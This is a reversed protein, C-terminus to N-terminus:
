DQRSPDPIFEMKSGLGQVFRKGQKAAEKTYYKVSRRREGTTAEVLDSRAGNKLVKKMVKSFNMSLESTDALCTNCEMQTDSSRGFQITVMNYIDARRLDNAAKNAIKAFDEAYAVQRECTFHQYALLEDPEIQKLPQTRDATAYINAGIAQVAEKIFGVFEEPTSFVEIQM